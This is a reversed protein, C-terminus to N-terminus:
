GFAVVIEVAKPVGGAPSNHAVNGHESRAWILM